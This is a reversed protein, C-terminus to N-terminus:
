EDDFTTTSLDKTTDHNLARMLADEDKQISIATKSMPFAVAVQSITNSKIRNTTVHALGDQGNFQIAFDDKSSNISNGLNKSDGLKSDNITVAYLDLGGFGKRGNSAFYLTNDAGFSPNIDDKKTNVKPGLNLPKGVAGNAFVNAVYIDYKGYTGPMNSAFFLQKGDASITPHKASFHKPCVKLKTINTYKDGTLEVRYLEHVEEKKSFAGYEPKIFSAMTFFAYKGNPSVVVESSLKLNEKLAAVSNQVNGTNPQYDKEIQALWDEASTLRTNGNQMKEQAFALREEYKSKDAGLANTAMLKEYWFAAVDYKELIFNVNGLDQFIEVESYGLALLELYDDINKNTENKEIGQANLSASSALVAFFATLCFKLTPKM